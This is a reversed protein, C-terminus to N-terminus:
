GNWCHPTLVLRGVLVRWFAGFCAKWRFRALVLWFAGFCALVLRGVFVLWFSGFRALVRWFLGELSFVGFGTLIRRVVFFHRFGCIMLNALEVIWYVRKVHNVTKSKQVPGPQEMEMCVLKARRCQDLSSWRWASWSREEASTWATGDGHLGDESKQVPGPQEMEM